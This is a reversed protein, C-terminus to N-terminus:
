YGKEAKGCVEAHEHTETLRGRESKGNNKGRRKWRLPGRIVVLRAANSMYAPHEVRASPQAAGSRPPGIHVKSAAGRPPERGRRRLAGGVSGAVPFCHVRDCTLQM